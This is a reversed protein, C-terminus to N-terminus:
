EFIYNKNNFYRTDVTSLEGNMVPNVFGIYMGFRILTRIVSRGTFRHGAEVIPLIPQIGSNIEFCVLYGM